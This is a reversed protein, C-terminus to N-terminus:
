CVGERGGTGFGGLRPPPLGVMEWEAAGKATGQGLLYAPQGRPVCPGRPRRSSGVTGHLLQSEGDPVLKGNVSVNRGQILVEEPGM